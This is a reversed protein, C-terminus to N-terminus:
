RSVGSGQPHPLESQDSPKVDFLVGTAFQSFAFDFILSECTVEYSIHLCYHGFEKPLQYQDVIGGVKSV